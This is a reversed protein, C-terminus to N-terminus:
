VLKLLLIGTVSSVIIICTKMGEVDGNIILNYTNEIFAKFAIVLLMCCIVTIKFELDIM